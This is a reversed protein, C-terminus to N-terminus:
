GVFGTWYDSLKKWVTVRDDVRRSYLMTKGDDYVIPGCDLVKQAFEPAAFVVVFNAEQSVSPAREIRIVPGWWTIYNRATFPNCGPPFNCILLSSAEDFDEPAYCETLTNMIQSPDSPGGDVRLSSTSRMSTQSRNPRRQIEVTLKRDLKREM